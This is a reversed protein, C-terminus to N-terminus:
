NVLPYKGFFEVSRVRVQTQYDWCIGVIKLVAAEFSFENHIWMVSVFCILIRSFSYVLLTDLLFFYACVFVYICICDCVYIYLIIYYM